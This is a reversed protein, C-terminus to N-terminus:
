TDGRSRIFLAPAPPEWAYRALPSISYLALLRRVAEGDLASADLGAHLLQTSIEGRTFKGEKLWAFYKAYDRHEKVPIPKPLKALREIRASRQTLLLELEPM